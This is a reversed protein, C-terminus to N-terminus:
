IPQEHHDGGDRLLAMPRAPGAASPASGLLRHGLVLLFSGLRVRVGRRPPRSHRLLARRAARARAQTMREDAQLLKADAWLDGTFHRKM